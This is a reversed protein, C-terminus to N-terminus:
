FIDEKIERSKENNLNLNHLGSNKKLFKKKREM